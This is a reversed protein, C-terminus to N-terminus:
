FEHIFLGSRLKPEFWTSKPPMIFNNDSIKKIEEIQTPYMLFVINGKSLRNIEKEIDTGGVFKIEDENEIDVIQFLPQIIYRHLMVTDLSGIIDDKDIISEKASINYIKEDAIMTFSHNTKPFSLTEIEHIDFNLSIDKIIKQINYKLSDKIVRNYPLITLEDEFFIVAMFYNFEANKDYAPNEKRLKLAVDIASATRHHGDAIYLEKVDKFIEKIEQVREDDIRWLIHRVKDKTEFDYEKNKECQKIEDIIHKLRENPKQFLFVPETNANCTYFNNIRDIEKEKLTKEHRKINKNIYEDVNITAVLGTQVTDKFREQYIYFSDKEDQILLKDEKLKNLNEKARTYIDKDYLADTKIVNFFLNKDNAISDRVYDDSVVDYPLTSFNKAIDKKPRLAKFAKIDM